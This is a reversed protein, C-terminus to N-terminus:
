DEVITPTIMIVLDTSIKTTSTNKFLEGIIPIFGLLPVRRVTKQDNSSILGGLVITEGNKVRVQTSIGRSTPNFVKGVSTEIASDAVDSYSPQVLLTIYGEDNVQPTVRLTLGTRYREVSEASTGTGGETISTTVSLATDTSATVIATKNNLTMVKPKGLYKGEGKVILASLLVQFQQLSLLGKPKFADSANFFTSWSPDNFFNQRLFYTHERAPGTFQAFAGASDGWKLGLERTYDSNMEVIEAEILIQPAKVDLEAIIQEIQPFREAVDTIVVSNTRPEVAIQGDKSLVSRIVNLIAVGGEYGREGAGKIGEVLTRGRTGTGYQDQVGAAMASGSIDQATIARMESEVAMVPLLSIYKLTYIRTVVAPGEDTRRLVVFVNSDGIQQYTLGKITLLVHLADRATVGQMFATVREKELGEQAIFNTGAQVNLSHLFAQLPANKLTINVIKDLFTVKRASLASPSPKLPTLPAAKKIKPAVVAKPASTQAFSSVCLMGCVFVVSLIKIGSM